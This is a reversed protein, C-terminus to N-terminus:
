KEHKGEMQKINKAINLVRDRIFAQVLGTYLTALNDGVDSVLTDGDLLYKIDTKTLTYSVGQCLAGVGVSLTFKVADGNLAETNVSLTPVWSNCESQLEQIKIQLSEINLDKKVSDSVHEHMLPGNSM